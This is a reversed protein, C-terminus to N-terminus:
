FTLHVAVLCVHRGLVDGDGDDEGDEADDGVEGDSPEDDSIRNDKDDEDEDDDVVMLLGVMKRVATSRMNGVQLAMKWTHSPQSRM